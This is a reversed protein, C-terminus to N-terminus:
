MYIIFLYRKKKGKEKMNRMRDLKYTRRKLWSYVTTTRVICIQYECTSLYSLCDERRVSLISLHVSRYVITTMFLNRKKGKDFFFCFCFTLAHLENVNGNGNNMSVAIPIM